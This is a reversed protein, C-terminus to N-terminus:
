RHELLLGLSSWLRGRRAPVSAGAVMRMSKRGGRGGAEDVTNNGSEEVEGLVWVIM